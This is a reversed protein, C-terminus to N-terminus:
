LDSYDKWTYLSVIGKGVEDGLWVVHGSLGDSTIELSYEGIEAEKSYSYETFCIKNTSPEFYGNVANNEGTLPRRLDGSFESVEVGVVDNIQLEIDLIKGDTTCTGRFINGPSLVEFATRKSLQGDSNKNMIITDTTINTTEPEYIVNGNGTNMVSNIVTDAQTPIGYITIILTIITVILGIVAVIYQKRGWEDTYGM